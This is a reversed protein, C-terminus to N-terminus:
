HRRRRRALTGLGLLGLGAWLWSDRGSGADSTRCNCGSDDTIPAAPVGSETGVEDAGEDTETDTEEESSEDDNSPDGVTFTVSAQGENGAYDLAVATLTYEGNTFQANAWEWPGPEDWPLREKLGVSMDNIFLEVSLVAYSDEDATEVVIDFTTPSDPYNAADTPVTFSVEPPLVDEPWSIGPGCTSPEQGVSGDCGMAWSGGATPNAAAGTCDPGPNWTGDADTCPTIDLGTQEEVWGVMSFMTVYIGYNDCGEPGGSLIGFARWGGDELQVFGSSGSDGGCTSTEMTGAALTLDVDDSSIETMGWRKTGADNQGEDTLGFGAVAVPTGLGLELVECGMIPPTPAINTVPSSLRCYAYDSPGVNGTWGPFLVCESVSVAFDPDFLDEGFRIEDPPGGANADMCHAATLVIEPHVLTGSCISGGNFLGVITPWQCTSAVQGGYIEPQAESVPAEYGPSPSPNPSPQQASAVGFPALGLGLAIAVAVPSGRRSREMKM